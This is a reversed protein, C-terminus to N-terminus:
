NGPSPLHITGVKVPPTFSWRDIMLSQTAGGSQIWAGQTTPAVTNQFVVAGDIPKIAYIDYAGANSQLPLGFADPIKSPAQSYISLQDGMMWFSSDLNFGRGTPVLKFLTDTSDLPTAVPLSNGTRILDQAKFIAEDTSWGQAEFARVM